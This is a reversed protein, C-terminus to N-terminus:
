GLLHASLSDIIKSFYFVRGLGQLQFPLCQHAQGEQACEEQFGRSDAHREGRGNGRKSQM